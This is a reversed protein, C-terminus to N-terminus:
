PQLYFVVNATMTFPVLSIPQGATSAPGPTIVWQRITAVEQAHELADIYQLLGHATGDAKITVVFNSLGSTTKKTPAETVINKISLAVGVKNALQEMRDVVQSTDAAKPFSVSLQDVLPQQAQYQANSDKIRAQLEQLQQEETRKSHLADASRWVFNWLFPQAIGLVVLLVGTVILQQLLSQQKKVKM